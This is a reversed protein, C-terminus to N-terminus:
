QKVKAKPSTKVLTHNLMRDRHNIKSLHIHLPRDM